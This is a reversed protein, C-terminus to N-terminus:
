AESQQAGATTPGVDARPSKAAAAQHHIADLIGNVFAPSNADGFRRALDIAESIIVGVADPKCEQLEYAGLRIVNRDVPTIRELSWHAAAATIRQDLATHDRWASQALKRAAALQAPTPSTDFSLDEHLSDDRLFSDIEADFTDGLTEYLCLAQLALTRVPSRRPTTPPRDKAPTM